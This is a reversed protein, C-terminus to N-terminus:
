KQETKDEKKEGILDYREILRQIVASKSLGTLKCM